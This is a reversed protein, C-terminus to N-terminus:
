KVIEQPTSSEHKICDKSQFFKKDACFYNTGDSVCHGNNLEKTKNNCGDTSTIPGSAYILGATLVLVSLTAVMTTRFKCIKKM